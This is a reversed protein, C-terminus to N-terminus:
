PALDIVSVRLFMVEAVVPARVEVLFASSDEGVITQQPDALASFITDDESQEISYQVDAAYKAQRYTMVLDGGDMVAMPVRNSNNRTPDFGFAYSEFNTIQDGSEDATKLGVGFLEAWDSYGLMPIPAITTDGVTPLPGGGANGEGAFAHVAVAAAPPTVVYTLRRNAEGNLNYSVTNGLASGGDSVGELAWDVPLDPM